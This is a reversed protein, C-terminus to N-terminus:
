WKERRIRREEIGLKLLHSEADQILSPPGCMFCLTEANPIMAGFHDLALRGRGGSWEEDPNGRTVTRQLTITGATALQQLEGAYAFEDPTRASYLVGIHTAPKTLLVHWLMARLPAIGTGGAVFLLNSETFSEPLQFSGLPGELGVPTGPEIGDLHVGASRTETVQVLLELTKDREAQEPANAISYPKRLTQGLRGIMVAQGALYTFPQELALRLIKSRPTADIMERAPVVLVDPM